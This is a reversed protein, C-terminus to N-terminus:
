LLLFSLSYTHCYNKPYQSVMVTQVKLNHNEKMVEKAKEMRSNRQILAGNKEFEPRLSAPYTGRLFRRKLGILNECIEPFTPRQLPDEMWCKEILRTLEECNMPLQPREFGKIREVIDKIQELSGFPTTQSLIESCTMAFSWVDAKLLSACSGLDKDIIELAMYKPTGVRYYHQEKSVKSPVDINSTGYDVLKVSYRRCNLKGGEMSNPRMLVNDPKLDRHAVHMDHLYCMGSAIQHMIDIAVLYSLPKLQKKLMGSLSTDMFEMVLYLNEHNEGNGRKWKRFVKLRWSCLEDLSWGVGCYIFKIINPHSLGALIGVEKRFNSIGDRVRLIKTACQFGLWTSECVVGFAGEGIEKLLNPKLSDIVNPVEVGDLEGGELKLDGLRRWLYERWEDNGGYKLREELFREDDEIEKLTPVDLDVTFMISHWGPHSTSHIEYIVDWCCRLDSVLERFVEKNNIQFAIAQFRNQNACDSVVVGLKQIICCLEELAVGFLQVESSLTIIEGVCEVVKSLKTLLHKCQKKNLVENGNSIEKLRKIEEKQWQLLGGIDYECITGRQRYYTWFMMFCTGIYHWLRSLQKFFMQLFTAM